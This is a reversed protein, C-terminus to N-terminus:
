PCSALQSPDSPDGVVLDIETGLPQKAGPNPDQDVVVWSGNPEGSVAPTVQGLAFGDEDIRTTAVELPECQYDGVNQPAPTPTPTTLAPRAGGTM